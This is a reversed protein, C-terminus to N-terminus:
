DAGSMDFKIGIARNAFNEHQMRNGYVLCDRPQLDLHTVSNFSLHTTKKLFIFKIRNISQIGNCVPRQREHPAGDAQRRTPAADVGDLRHRVRRHRGPGAGGGGRAVLDEAEGGGHSHPRENQTSDAPKIQTPESAVQEPKTCHQCIQEFFKPCKPPPTELTASSQHQRSAKLKVQSSSSCWEILFNVIDSTHRMREPPPDVPGSVRGRGVACVKYSSVSANM